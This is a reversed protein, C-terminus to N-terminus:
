MDNLKVFFSDVGMLREIWDQIENRNSLIYSKSYVRETKSLVILRTQYCTCIKAHLGDKISISPAHTGITGATLRSHAIRSNSLKSRVHAISNTIPEAITQQTKFITTHYSYM